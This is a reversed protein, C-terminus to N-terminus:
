SAQRYMSRVMRSLCMWITERYMMMWDLPARSCVCGAARPLAFGWFRAELRGTSLFFSRPVPPVASIGNKFCARSSVPSGAISAHARRNSPSAGTGDPKAANLLIPSFESPCISTTPNDPVHAASSLSPPIQWQHYVYVM